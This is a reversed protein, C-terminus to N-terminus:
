EERAPKLSASTAEAFVCKRAEDDAGAISIAISQIRACGCGAATVFRLPTAPPMAPTCCGLVKQLWAIKAVKMKHALIHM